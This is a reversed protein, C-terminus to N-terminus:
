YKIVEGNIMIMAPEAMINFPDDKFMIIDADKGVALSGVRSDIGCIRAPNITIAELAKYKDLGNKVAVAGSMFLYQVPIVPHDTCLAIEVGNHSLIGANKTDLQKMEPKSRDCIIPGVIANVKEKAIIDAIKYGETAHVLVCNIDFEKCIRIATCIDDARHCHFHASVEKKLLPLLAECKIDYEPADYDEDHKSKELGESYRKAKYLAERILAATAMRTVPTEDKDNYVTKPNEGLAFKMAVNKIVMDDIRRGYTKIASIEGCITNASGPSTLVTTIGSELAEEFCKDFPNIGDIVRLQPTVPDTEENCDDSEFGIGDGIIGLHTHADIFGPFLSAGNANIDKETTDYPTGEAVKAIKGNEVMVFGKDIITKEMTFIKANYIYMIGGLNLNNSSVQRALAM